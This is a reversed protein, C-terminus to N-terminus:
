QQKETPTATNQDIAKDIAAGQEELVHALAISRDKINKHQAMYANVLEDTIADESSVATRNQRTRRPAPKAATKFYKFCKYGAFIVVAALLGGIIPARHNNIFTSGQRAVMSMLTKTNLWLNSAVTAMESTKAVEKVANSGTAVIVDKVQDTNMAMASM